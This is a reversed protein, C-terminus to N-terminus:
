PLRTGESMADVLVEGALWSKAQGVGLGDAVRAPTTSVVKLSSVSVSRKPSCTTRHPPTLASIWAPKSTRTSATVLRLDGVELDEV